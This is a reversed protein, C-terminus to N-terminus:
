GTVVGAGTNGGLNLPANPDLSWNADLLARAAAEQSTPLVVTAVNALTGIRVLQAGPIAQVLAQAIPSVPGAAGTSDRPTITFSKSDSVDAM